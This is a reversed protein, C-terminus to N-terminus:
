ASAGAAIEKVAPLDAPGFTFKANPADIRRNDQNIIMAAGQGYKGGGTVKDVVIGYSKTLNLVDLTTGRHTQDGSIAELLRTELPALIRWVSGAVAHRLEKNFKDLFELDPEIRPDDRWNGLTKAQPPDADEDLVLIAGLVERSRKLNGYALVVSKAIAKESDTYNRHGNRTM